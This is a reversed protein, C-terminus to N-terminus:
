LPLTHFKKHGYSIFGSKIKELIQIVHKPKVDEVKEAGVSKYITSSRPYIIDEALSEPIGLLKALSLEEARMWDDTGINKHVFSLEYKYEPRSSQLHKFEPAIRIWGSVCCITGCSEVVMQETIEKPPLDEYEEDLNDIFVSIDFHNEPVRQMIGILKNINSVNLKTTM